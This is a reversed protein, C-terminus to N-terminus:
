RGSICNPVSRAKRSRRTTTKPHLLELSRDVVRELVADSDIAQMRTTNIVETAMGGTSERIITPLDIEAIIYNALDILPLRDIIEVLNAKAVVEDIDVRDIVIDTLNMRDLVSDVAFPIVRDLVSNVLESHAVTSVTANISQVAVGFLAVTASATIDVVAALPNGARSGPVPALIVADSM